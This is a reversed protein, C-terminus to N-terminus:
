QAGCEGIRPAPRAWVGSLQAGKPRTLELMPM